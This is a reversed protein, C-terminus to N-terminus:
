AKNYEEIKKDISAKLCTPCQCDENDDSFPMIQPLENCWCDKSYCSFEAKCKSCFKRRENAPQVSVKEM